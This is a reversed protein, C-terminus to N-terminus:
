KKNDFVNHPIENKLKNIEKTKKDLYEKFNKDFDFNKINGKQSEKKVREWEVKLYVETYILILEPLNRVIKCCDNIFHSEMLILEKVSEEIFSPDNITRAFEEFKKEEILSKLNYKSVKQSTINNLLSPKYTQIYELMEASLKLPEKIKKTLLSKHLIADYSSNVLCIFNVIQKDYEGFCNLQLRIKSELIYLENMFSSIDKPTQKDEFLKVKAYYSSVSNRLEQIWEMRNKTVIDATRQKKAMVVSVIIATTSGLISLITIVYEWNVKCGIQALLDCM